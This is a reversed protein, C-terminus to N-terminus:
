VRNCWYDYNFTDPNRILNRSESAWKRVEINEMNEAQSLLGEIETNREDDNRDFIMDGTIMYLCGLMVKQNPCDPDSALELVLDEYGSNAVSLNWDQDPISDTVSYAWNRLEEKTYNWPDINM